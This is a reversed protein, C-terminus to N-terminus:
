AAVGLCHTQLSDRGREADHLPQDIETRLAEIGFAVAISNEMLHPGVETPSLRLAVREPGIVATVLLSVDVSEAGVRPRLPGTM